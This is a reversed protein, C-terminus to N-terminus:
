KRGSATSAATFIFDAGKPVNRLLIGLLMYSAFNRYKPVAPFYCLRPLIRSLRFTEVLTRLRRLLRPGRLSMEFLQPHVACQLGRLSYNGLKGIEAMIMYEYGEIDIKAFVPGPGLREMLADMSYGPVLIAEGDGIDLASTESSGFGSVANMRIAPEPSLAGNLVTVNPYYPSLERLIESCRPDPEVALVSGALRSAWFPTVGIWAGIDLYNTSKDLNGALTQFTRPEWSGAKLKAYFKRYQPLDPLRIAHGFVQVEVTELFLPVDPM